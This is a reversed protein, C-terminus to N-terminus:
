SSASGSPTSPGTNKIDDFVYSDVRTFLGIKSYLGNSLVKNM